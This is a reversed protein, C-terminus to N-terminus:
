KRPKEWVGSNIKSHDFYRKFSKSTMEINGNKGILYYKWSGSSIEM